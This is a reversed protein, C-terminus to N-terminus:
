KRAIVFSPKPWRWFWLFLISMSYKFQWEMQNQPGDWIKRIRTIVSDVDIVKSGTSMNQLQKQKSEGGTKKAAGHRHTIEM